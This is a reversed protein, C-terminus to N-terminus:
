QRLVEGIKLYSLRRAASIGGGLSSVLSLAIVLGVIEISFLSCEATWMAVCYGVAAGIACGAAALQIIRMLFAHLLSSKKAGLARLIAVERRKSSLELSVMFMTALFVGLFLGSVSFALSLWSVTFSSGIIISSATSVVIQATVLAEPRTFSAFLYRSAKM